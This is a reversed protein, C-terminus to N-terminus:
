VSDDFTERLAFQWEGAPNMPGAALDTSVNFAQTTYAANGVGLVVTQMAGGPPTVDLVVESPYTAGVNSTLTGTLVFRVATYAGGGDSGTFTTAFTSGPDDSQLQGPVSFSERPAALATGAAAMLAFAMVKKMAM